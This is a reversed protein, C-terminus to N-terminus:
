DDAGSDLGTVKDLETDKATLMLIPLAGTKSDKRLRKTAEFGSMGPLMVDFIIMDPVADCVAKLADEANDFAMIEYSFSTLAIKVM